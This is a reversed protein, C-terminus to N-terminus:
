GNQPFHSAATRPLARLLLKLLEIEEFTALEAPKKPLVRNASAPFALRYVMHPLQSLRTARAARVM